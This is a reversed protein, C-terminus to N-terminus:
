EWDGTKKRRMAKRAQEAAKVDQAAENPCMRYGCDAKVAFRRNEPRDRVSKREFAEGEMMRKKAHIM